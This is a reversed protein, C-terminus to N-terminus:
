LISFIKMKKQYKRNQFKHLKDILNKYRQLQKRLFNM